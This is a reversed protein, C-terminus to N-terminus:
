QLVVQFQLGVGECINLAEVSKLQLTSKSLKLLIELNLLASNSPLSRLSIEKSNNCSTPSVM